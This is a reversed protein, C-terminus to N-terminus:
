RLTPHPKFEKTRDFLYRYTTLTRSRYTSLSEAVNIMIPNFEGIWQMECNSYLPNGLRYEGNDITLRQILKCGEVIMYSDVGKGQWEPVVGFVLGVMKDCKRTKKIWAFKLKEWLGFRGHLYKFWQNLDPLNLWTGIPEDKFYVFWIIREDMVPKMTQFMKRVTREEIHKLGGHGAWAKNYVICFDRAFKDLQDKRIHAASLDPNKACQAHRSYLKEQQRKGVNIAFCAQNYFNKFGYSEFLQRYYPQNYNLCYVPPGFGDVLLGWWRDREGFNIPGDMAQMNRQLLWHKAVDFLLDAAAQDNICDFFGIGGVPVDDGKNKYKQNVFAAIRGILEGSDTKLIWRIAEGNRFAKNKKKDFVELIDRDLPQIYNPDKKNIQVNVKIFEKELIPSNVEILQM